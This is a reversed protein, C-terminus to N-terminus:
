GLRRSIEVAAELVREVHQAARAEMRTTPGSVSVAAVARGSRARIPAAFCTLGPISEERDASWGRARIARLEDLLAEPSRISKATAGAHFDAACLYADVRDRPQFALIAKGTATHHAAVRRGIEIDIHLPSQPIGKDLFVVSTDGDMAALHATEGCLEALRILQPRAYSLLETHSYALQGLSFLKMGLRYRGQETKTLYGNEELTTLLRFATSRNVGLAAAADGPGLERRTYFLELLKLAKDVSQVTYKGNGDM